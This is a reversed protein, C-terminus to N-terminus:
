LGTAFPISPLISPGPDCVTIRAPNEIEYRLQSTPVNSLMNKLLGPPFTDVVRL